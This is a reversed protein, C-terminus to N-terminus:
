KLYEELLRAAENRERAQGARIADFLSLLAYLRENRLAAEPVTPYLPTLSLGRASGLACSWVPVPDSSPAIVSNLPPAAYGTPVGRTLSGWAPPFAYKAGHLLFELLQTKLVVPRREQFILLRAAVARKLSAHVASIALGTLAALEAYGASEDGRSLLALLVFLDQPKFGPQRNSIQAM